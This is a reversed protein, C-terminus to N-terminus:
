PTLSCQTSTVCTNDCYYNDATNCAVRKNECEIFVTKHPAGFSLNNMVAQFFTAARQTIYLGMGDVTNNCTGFNSKFKDPDKDDDLGHGMDCDLYLEARVGYFSAIHYMNLTSGSILDVTTANGELTYTTGNLLCRTESNYYPHSSPSFKVQQKSNEYFPFVEDNKGQFAIIPPLNSGYTFFSYQDNINNIRMPIGTWMALIGKIYSQVNPVDTPSAYYYDRDILGLANQTTTGVSPFAQYTMPNTYWGANLAIIGGASMGGVFIKTLDIRYPDNLTGGPTENMQRKIISRIAGRGDQCARYAALQQQVSTYIRQDKLRGVRYEVNFTVFGRHAFYNCMAKVLSQDRSSCEDFGGAHFLIMAPLACGNIYDHNKPYYVDYSLISGNNDCITSIPADCIGPRYSDEDVYKVDTFVTPLPSKAYSRTLIGIANSGPFIPQKLNLSCNAPSDSCQAGVSWTYISLLFILSVQLIFPKM